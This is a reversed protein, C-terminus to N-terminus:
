RPVHHEMSSPLYDEVPSSMHDGGYIRYLTDMVM